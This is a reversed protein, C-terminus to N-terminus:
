QKLNQFMKVNDNIAYRIRAVPRVRTVKANPDKRTIM